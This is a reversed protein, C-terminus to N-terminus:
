DLGRNLGWISISGFILVAVLILYNVLVGLNHLHRFVNLAIQRISHQAVKAFVANRLESFGLASARAVGYGILSAVVVTTVAAEPSDMNLTNATNLTDVAHKFIFPVSTNVVKAGVLLSLATVVRTKVAPNNKPWLYSAMANIMDRSTVDKKQKVVSNDDRALQSVGPHYCTRAPILIRFM